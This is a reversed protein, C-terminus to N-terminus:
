EPCASDDNQLIFIDRDELVDIQDCGEGNLTNIIVFDNAIGGEMLSNPLECGANDFRTFGSDSLDLFLAVPEAVGDVMATRLNPMALCKFAPCSEGQILPTAAFEAHRLDLTHFAACNKIFIAEFDTILRDEGIRPGFRISELDDAGEVNVTRLLPQQPLIISRIGANRNVANDDVRLTVEQLIELQSFDLDLSQDGVREVNELKLSFLNPLESIGTLDVPQDAIEVIFKSVLDERTIPTGLAQYFNEDPFFLRIDVQLSILTVENLAQGDLVPRVEIDYLGPSGTGRQDRQRDLLGAANSDFRFNGGGLDEPALVQGAVSFQLADCPSCDVHVDFSDGQILRPEKSFVARKVKTTSPALAMATELYQPANLFLAGTMFQDGEVSLSFDQDRSVPVYALQGPIPEGGAENFLLVFPAGPPIESALQREDLVGNENFVRLLPTVPESGLNMIIAAPQIEPRRADNVLGFVLDRGADLFTAANVQAPSSVVGKDPLNRRGGLTAQNVGVLAHNSVLTVALGSGSALGFLEAVDYVGQRLPALTRAASFTEGGGRRASFTLTAADTESLNNVVIQSRFAYDGDLGSGGNLNYSVWPMFFQRPGEAEPLPTALAMAPERQANFFFAGGVLTAAEADATVVAFGSRALDGGGLPLALPSWPAVAETQRSSVFGNDDYFRLQLSTPTASTNVVVLAANEGSGGSLNNFILTNSAASLNFLEARAPSATSAKDGNAGSYTAYGATVYSSDSEILLAIGEGDASWVAQQNFHDNVLDSIFAESEADLVRQEGPDLEFLTARRMASRDGEGVGARRVSIRIRARRPGTNNLALVSTFAYDGALLSGGSLRHSFWPVMSKFRLPDEPNDSVTLEVVRPASVVLTEPRAADGGVRYVDVPFRGQNFVLPVPADGFQGRHGFANFDYFFADDLDLTFPEGRRATWATDALEPREPRPVVQYSVTTETTNNEIDRVLVELTREGLNQTPILLPGDGLQAGNVFRDVITTGDSDSDQADVVIATEDGQAFHAGEGREGYFAHEFTVRNITPAQLDLIELETEILSGLTANDDPNFLIARFTENDEPLADEIIPIEVIERISGPPFTVRTTFAPFDAGEEASGAEVRLSVSVAENNLGTRLMAVSISEEREWANYQASEFVFVSGTDQTVQVSANGIFIFGTRVTNGRNPAVNIRFSGSGSQEQQVNATIWDVDSRFSWNCSDGTEVEIQNVEGQGEGNFSMQTPSVEYTCGEQTINHFAGNIELKAIRSETSTNPQISYTIERPGAFPGANIEIWPTLGAIEYGCASETIVEFAGQGPGSDFTIDTQSLSFTCGGRSITFSDGEFETDDPGVVSITASEAQNDTAPAVEFTLNAVESGTTQSLTLWDPVGVLNWRCGTETDITVAGSGGEADYTFDNTNFTYKCIAAEQSIAYFVGTPNGDPGDLIRIQANREFADESLAVTYQLQYAAPADGPENTSLRDLTLWGTNDPELYVIDFDATCGASATADLVGIDGEDSIDTVLPPTTFEYECPRAAQRVTLSRGGVRLLGVREALNPNEAVSVTFTITNGSAPTCTFFSEGPNGDVAEIWSVLNRVIFRCEPNSFTVTFQADGAEHSVLLESSTLVIESDTCDNDDCNQAYVGGVAFTAAILFCWLQRM